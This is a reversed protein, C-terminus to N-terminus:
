QPLLPTIRRMVVRRNREESLDTAVRLYGEGYGQVILNEPPIRFYETLALAVSEARRDSLGLNYAASGTADTHGEILFVESPNRDLLREIVRGVQLLKPVQEPDINARNTQFVVPDPSLVPVLERVQRVERIQRLTFSRDVARADAEAQELLALARDPDTGAGLRLERYRMDPLTSVDIPEVRAPENFLPVTAGDAQVRQRSIVRGTADRVTVVRSGDERRWESVTTGDAYREIRRTGGESQLIADDDRWIRLDGDDGQVIVREDGRAVVRNDNVVMGIALAGLAALGARELDRQRRSRGEAPLAADPQLSLRSSFDDTSRRIANAVIDEEVVEAPEPRTGEGAAAEPSAEAPAGDKPAAAAGLVQLAAAVEPQRALEEVRARQRADLEAVPAETPVTETQPIAEEIVEPEAEAAADAAEAERLLRTIEAEKAADEQEPAAPATEAPAEAATDRARPRKAEKGERNAGAAPQETGGAAEAKRKAREEKAADTAAPAAEAAAPARDTPTPAAADPAAAAAPAEAPRPKAEPAAEAPREPAPESPATEATDAPETETPQDAPIAEGAAARPAAEPEAAVEAVADTRPESPPAAPATLETDAFAELAARVREMAAPDALTAEPDALLPACADASPDDSCATLAVLHADCDQPAGTELCAALEPKFLSLTAPDSVQAAGPHPVLALASLSLVLATRNPSLSRRM